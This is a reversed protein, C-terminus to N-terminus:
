GPRADRSEAVQIPSDFLVYAKTESHYEPWDPLSTNNPNGTKAFQVWYNMMMDSLAEDEVTFGEARDISGFVYPLEAAHFAGYKRGLQTPPIRSFVYFYAREMCGAVFKAPKMFCNEAFQKAEYADQYFLSGENETVGILLPISAMKSSTFVTMPDYPLVQGDYVPGFDFQKSAEVIEQASKKRLEALTTSECGLLRAFQNGNSLAQELSGNAKPLIYEGSFITGSECIARSFLGKARDSVMLATISAAGSSEGFLTVRTPDGGFQAINKQVWQLAAIQDLLGCNGVGDKHVLFGFAGLRYNLSVVVVGKKALPLGDYIPWDASGFCYKGGHIWVLVPLKDQPKNSPSWVNLNLCDENLAVKPLIFSPAQPCAFGFSTCTRVEKWPVVKQPAKWRNEGVPAAAYPIGLYVRVGKEVKGRIPGSDLLVISTRRLFSFGVLFALLILTGILIWLKLTM